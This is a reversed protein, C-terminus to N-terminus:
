GLGLWQGKPDARRFAARIKEVVNGPLPGNNAIEINRRANDLRTTGIIATHVEPFSLTFRLAIEPWAQAPDGKFGIEAPDLKIARFRDTYDKAYSQYMGPQQDISKWAANAVPRKAIIGVRKERAVPLVVDINRQDAISISTEIVAVDPHAAAWAAAENDGSYGAFRIKGAERAKVLAGLAEGKKLTDLDCTHLLMVDIRDTRLRRLSRDVSHLIMQQSWAPAGAEEPSTNGCKSVLVFDKRRDGFYEGLFEESGPYSAATDILNVGADLLLRVVDAARERETTLYAVPAAGFGLISVDLNTRGLTRREM